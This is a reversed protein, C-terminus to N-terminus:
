FEVRFGIQYNRPRQYTTATRLSAPPAAPPANTVANFGTPQESNLINFVSGIISLGLTSKGIAINFTKELQVDFVHLVPTRSEGRPEAFVTGWGGPDTYTVTYPAGSRYSYNVGLDTEVWPIRYSGFIKFRNRADDGLYGYRNM